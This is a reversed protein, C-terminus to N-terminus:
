KRALARIQEAANEDLRYIKVASINDFKIEATPEVSNELFRLYADNSFYRRGKAAIIYDGAALNAMKTKDSLSVSILDTRGTKQLYYEFLGPTENAIIANPNPNKAIIAEITERVAADYFEDHPFYFGAASTGGGLENTFLRFHPSANFSNISSAIVLVAPM